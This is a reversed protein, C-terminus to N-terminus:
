LKERVMLQLLLPGGLLATMVGLPIEQATGPLRALVDAGMLLVGGLLLCLGFPQRREPWLFRVLHPALLGVFGIPGAVAVTSTALLTALLLYWARWRAPRIGLSLAMDDGNELVALNRRTLWLALLAPVVCWLLLQLQPWSRGAVGGAMWFLFEGADAEARLLLTTTLGGCLATVAVGALVIRTPQLQRGGALLLTLLGAVLGGAMALWPTLGIGAQGLLIGAVVALAAGASVGTLAPSALPNRSVRQMVLGSLALCGGVVFALLARPLRLEWVVVQALGDGQGQLAAWLRETGLPVHGAALGGWLLLPMMAALLLQLKM